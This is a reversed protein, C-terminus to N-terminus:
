LVILDRLHQKNLCLMKKKQIQLIKFFYYNLINKSKLYHDKKTTSTFASITSSETNTISKSSPTFRHSVSTKNYDYLNNHFKM